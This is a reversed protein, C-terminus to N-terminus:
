DVLVHRDLRELDGQAILRDLQAFLRKEHPPAVELYAVLLRSDLRDRVGDTNVVGASDLDAANECPMKRAGRRRFWFSWCCVCILRWCCLRVIWRSSHSQRRPNRSTAFIALLVWAHQQTQTSALAARGDTAVPNLWDGTEFDASM